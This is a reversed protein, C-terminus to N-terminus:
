GKTERLARSRSLREELSRWYNGVLLSGILLLGIIM